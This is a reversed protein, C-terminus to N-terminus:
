PNMARPVDHGFTKIRDPGSLGPYFRYYDASPFKAKLAQWQAARERCEKRAQDQDALLLDHHNASLLEGDPGRLNAEVKFTGGVQGQVPWKFTEHRTSSNAPITAVPYTQAAL